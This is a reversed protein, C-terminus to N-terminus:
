SLNMVFLIIITDMDLSKFDRDFGAVAMRARVSKLAGTAVM